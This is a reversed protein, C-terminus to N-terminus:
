KKAKKRLLELYLEPVPLAGARNGEWRGVTHRSYKRGFKKEILEIVEPQSLGAAERLERFESPDEPAKGRSRYPAAASV